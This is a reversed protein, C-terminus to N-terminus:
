WRHEVALYPARQRVDNYLASVDTASRRETIGLSANWGDSFRYQVRFDAEAFRRSGLAMGEGSLVLLWDRAVRWEGNAHLLPMLSWVSVGDRAGPQSLEVSTRAVQLAAGLRLTV